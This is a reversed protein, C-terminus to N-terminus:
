RSVFPGTGRLIWWSVFALEALLALQADFSLSTISAAAAHPALVFLALTAVPASLLAIMLGFQPRSRRTSLPRVAARAALRAAFDAPVQLEPKCELAATVRWDMETAAHTAPNPALGPPMSHNSNMANM